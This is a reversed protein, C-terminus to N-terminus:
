QVGEICHGDRSEPCLVQPNGNKLTRFATVPMKYLTFNQILSTSLQHIREKVYIFNQRLANMEAM